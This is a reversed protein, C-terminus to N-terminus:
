QLKKRQTRSYVTKQECRTIGKTALTEALPCSQAGRKGIVRIRARM